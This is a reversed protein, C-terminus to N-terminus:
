VVMELHILNVLVLLKQKMMKKEMKTVIMQVLKVIMQQNMHQGLNNMLQVQFHFTIMVNMHYM